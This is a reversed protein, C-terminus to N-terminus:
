VPTARRLQVDRPAFCSLAAKVREELTVDPRDCREAAERAHDARIGLARLWPIVEEARAKAAADQAQDRRAQMFAAGFAQEATLQNHARCRLRLNELTSAGGRAVPVVHDFELFRQERCRQGGQGVFTCRGGDRQHVARRVRASIRRPNSSKRTPATRPRDVAGFKHKELHRVLARLAHVFVQGEDGNPIRHSLLAKAQELTELDQQGICFRVAYREPATPTVEPRLISSEVRRSSLQVDEAGGRVPTLEGPATMGLPQVSTLEDLQPFWQALLLKIEALSKNEAASLLEPANERTLKAGLMVVASLSLRGEALAEFIEPYVRAVRGANIRKYAAQESLRFREVCLAYMSPHGATLYPKRADIEALDALAEVKAGREQTLHCDADTFLVADAVAKRSYSSM